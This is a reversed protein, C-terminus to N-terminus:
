LISWTSNPSVLMYTERLTHRLNRDDIKQFPGSCLIIGDVILEQALKLLLKIKLAAQATHVHTPPRFHYLHIVISSIPIIDDHHLAETTEM